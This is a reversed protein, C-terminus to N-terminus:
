LRLEVYAVESTDGGFAISLSLSDDSPTETQSILKFSTFRTFTLETQVISFIIEAPTQCQWQTYTTTTATATTDPVRELHFEIICFQWWTLACCRYVQEKKKSKMKEKEPNLWYTQLVPFGLDISCLRSNHRIDWLICTWDLSSSLLLGEELVSLNTVPATHFLTATSQHNLTKRISRIRQKTRNSNSNTSLDINGEPEQERELEEDEGETNGLGILNDDAESQLDPLFGNNTSSLKLKSEKIDRLFVKYIGGDQCGIFLCDEDFPSVTIASIGIEGWLSLRSIYEGYASRKRQKARANQIKKIGDDTAKSKREQGGEEEDEEISIGIDFMKIFDSIEPPVLEVRSLDGMSGSADLLASGAFDDSGVSTVGEYGSLDLSNLINIAGDSGGCILRLRNECLTFIGGNGSNYNRFVLNRDWLESTEEGSRKSRRRLEYLITKGRSTALLVSLIGSDDGFGARTLVKCRTVLQGLFELQDIIQGTDIDLVFVQSISVSSTRTKTSISLTNATATTHNANPRSQFVIISYNNKLDHDISICNFNLTNSDNTSDEKLTIPCSWNHLVTYHSSPKLTTSTTLHPKSQPQTNTSIIAAEMAFTKFQVSNKENEIVLPKLPETLTTTSTDSPVANSTVEDTTGLKERLSNKGDDVGFLLSDTQVGVNYSTRHKFSTINQVKDLPRDETQISVDVMGHLKVRDDDDNGNDDQSIADSNHSENDGVRILADGQSEGAKDDDSDGHAAAGEEDGHGLTSEIVSSFHRERERLLKLQQRKIELEKLEEM